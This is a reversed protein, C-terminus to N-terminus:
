KAALVPSAPEPNPQHMWLWARPTLGSAHIAAAEAIGVYRFHWPEYQYCTLSVKARPYSMAFGYQWANAYLWAGANTQKAWDKYLWPDKDNRAKFDIALGLQHESHGPRASALLARNYGQLNVWHRFTYVQTHYDRYASAIALGAGATRAAAVMRGLDPVMVSRVSEFRSLGAKSAPVLDTPAYTSPLTYATDVLTLAWSSQKPLPTMVDDYTCAPLAEGNTVLMGPTAAAADAAPVAPVTPVTPLTAGAAAAPQAPVPVRGADIARPASGAAV